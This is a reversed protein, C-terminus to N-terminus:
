EPNGGERSHCCDLQALFAAASPINTAGGIKLLSPIFLRVKEATDM